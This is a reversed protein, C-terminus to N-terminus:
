ESFDGPQKQLIGGTLKRMDAGRKLNRVRRGQLDRRMPKLSRHRVKRSVLRQLGNRLQFLDSAATIERASVLSVGGQTGRQLSYVTRKGEDGKRLAPM